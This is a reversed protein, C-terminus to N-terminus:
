MVRLQLSLIIEVVSNSVYKQPMKLDSLHISIELITVSCDVASFGGVATLIMRYKVFEGHNLMMILSM